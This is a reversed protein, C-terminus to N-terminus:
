TIGLQKGFHQVSKRRLTLTHALENIRLRMFPQTVSRLDPLKPLDRMIKM